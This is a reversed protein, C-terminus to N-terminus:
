IHILSLGKGDRMAAPPRPHPWNADLRMQRGIQRPMRLGAADFTRNGGGGIAQRKYVDLHTYSVAWAQHIFVGGTSRPEELDLDIIQGHQFLEHVLVFVVLQNASRGPPLAFGRVIEKFFVASGAAPNAEKCGYPLM